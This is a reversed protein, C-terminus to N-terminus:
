PLSISSITDLEIPLHRQEMWDQTTRPEEFDSSIPSFHPTSNPYIQTRLPTLANVCVVIHWVEISPYARMSYM